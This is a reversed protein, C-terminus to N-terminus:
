RGEGPPPEAGPGAPVDGGQTGERLYNIWSRHARDEDSIDEEDPPVTPPAAPAIPVPGDPGHAHVHTGGLPPASLPRRVAVTAALATTFPVASVLGLSGVLTKVIEEALIEANVVEGVALGGTSFVVLLALSAGAYALFLTNVTSAIHDRGVKMARGFLQGFTQRRDADHIAFVTSAQTVTVDDLVGLAAIILGALVLGKLDLGEVAFRALNAEESSFGTLKAREIFLMGFGITVTLAAATGIVAVTTMENVGHALYLTVLMVALAGFLAVLAPSQGSLIGPVIFRTVVLLSLGLGLLSRAGHWRGVALVLGIFLAALLALAPTRQFDVIYYEREGPALESSSLKVRDGASFTPYGDTPTEITVTAGAEAGSTIEVEMRANEGSLGAIADPEDQYLEVSRITADILEDPADPVAPLEAASPWLFAMGVVTVVVIAAVVALLRRSTRQALDM